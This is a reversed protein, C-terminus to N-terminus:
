RTPTPRPGLGVPHRRAHARRCRREGHRARDRRRGEPRLRRSAAARPPRAARGQVRRAPLGPGHEGRDVRPLGGPGGELRDPVPQADRGALLRQRGDPVAPGEQDGEQDQQHQGALDPLPARQLRRRGPRVAARRGEDPRRVREYERGTPTTTTKMGLLSTPALQGGTMGYIANNVFLVTINEGRNAAQLINNGGIAALDGDGQYSIVIRTPGPGSSVRHCRGTRPRARGPRQRHRLLLLRVGLLGGPQHDRITRDRIGLEDIVEAILKHIMGHGCGPCYHTATPNREARASSSRRLMSQPKSVTKM